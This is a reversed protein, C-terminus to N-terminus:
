AWLLDLSNFFDKTSSETQKIEVLKECHFFNELVEVSIQQIDQKLVLLAIVLDDNTWILDNM